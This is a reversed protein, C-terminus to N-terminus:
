QGPWQVRFFGPWPNTSWDLLRTPMGFHQAAFYVDVLSDNRLFTAGASRFQGLMERELHLRKDEIKTEQQLKQNKAREPFDKRYVGPVQADFWDNVGRYWLCGIFGEDSQATKQKAQWQGARQLFGELNQIKEGSQPKPTVLRAL